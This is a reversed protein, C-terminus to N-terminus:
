EEPNEDPPSPPQEEEPSQNEEESNDENGNGNGNENGNNNDNGEGNNNGNGDGNESNNGDGNGNENENGGEEDGPPQQGDGPTEEDPPEVEEPEEENAPIDVSTQAADSEKDDQVAKVTFTYTSDPEPNEITLSTESTTTLEQAGGDNIAGTVVFQTNDKDKHKWVLEITNAEKNYKANFGNPAELKDFKESVTKPANGKVAYETIIQDSPTYESALKAPNSGKEIAVKEVSNPMKFDATEKGESAYQMINKFLMQAIKQDYGNSPLYTKRSEYGTWIAATYNTTYGAFWADPTAGNPIDYKQKEEATYNTTGTKGAVPLGPINATTGTGSSIATKLMDTIMFATYDNMVAESEPTTDIKTGDRMEIAKVTHPDTYFGENAFASYAGAMEMPSVAKTGLVSSEYYEDKFNFGLRNAFEMSQETGVEQIAKVAPINRSEALAQRMTMTGKFSNDWNNVETGESYKYPEDVLTHYTGWQNFEIAPAYGAIPKFTSGAQRKQDTAFNFGRKVEQNRGGGIARVEGTSSDLLTIGAQFEEDPYQIVDESNLINSVYKQIDKDATTHITLGDSFIDLDPYKETVEDIVVDVFSDYPTDDEIEREGEAVLGETVPISQAETKQEESIFGHQNMLSLVINRRKEANEPHTFPNYNNPSQPMGALLAAEHLELEDLDKGFYLRSATLVGHSNESMYIKNVYMEFIEQKTYKRELQFSLWAEQAKRSITKENNLFSNKVVQQTITSAGESGFGKTVNAIVAGGLRILDMGNHEYFRVDETALFANEVLDPIDEYEVYDLNGAGVETIKEGNIDLLVSPIPDKLLAPDLEPADKVMFAFTAAGAIMGVIGLAILTLFIKKFLTKGSKKKKPKPSQQQQKRREERSKYQESM